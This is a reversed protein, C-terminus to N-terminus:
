QKIIMNKQKHINLVMNIKTLIAIINLIVIEKTISIIKIIM